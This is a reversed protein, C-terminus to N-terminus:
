YRRGLQRIVGVGVCFVYIELYSWAPVQTWRHHLIGLALMLPWAALFGVLVSIAFDDLYKDLREVFGNDTDM